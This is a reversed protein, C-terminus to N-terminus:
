PAGDSSPLIVSLCEVVLRGHSASPGIRNALDDQETAQNHNGTIGSLSIFAFRAFEDPCERMCLEAASTLVQIAEEAAGASALTEGILVLVHGRHHDNGHEAFLQEAFRLHALGTSTRRNIIMIRGAIIHIGALQRNDRNRAPTSLACNIDVNAQDFQGCHARALARAALASAFIPPNCAAIGHAAALDAHELAEQPHGQDLSTLVAEIHSECRTMDGDPTIDATTSMTTEQLPLANLPMYDGSTRAPVDGEHLSRVRRGQNKEGHHHIPPPGTLSGCPM